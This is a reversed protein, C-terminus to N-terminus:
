QSDGHKVSSFVKEERQITNHQPLPETHLCVPQKDLILRENAFWTCVSKQVQRCFRIGEKGGCILVFLLCSLFCLASQTWVPDSVDPM